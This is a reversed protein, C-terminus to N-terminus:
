LIVKTGVLAFSLAILELFEKWDEKYTGFELLIIM